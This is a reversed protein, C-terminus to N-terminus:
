KIHCNFIFLAICNLSSFFGQVIRLHKSGFLGPLKVSAPGPTSLEAAIPGRRKHPTIVHQQAKSRSVMVPGILSCSVSLQGIPSCSVHTWASQWPAVSLTFGLTVLDQWDGTSTSEMLAWGILPSYQTYAVLLLTPCCGDMKWRLDPGHFGSRGVCSWGLWLRRKHFNIMWKCLFQYCFMIEPQQLCFNVNQWIIEGWSLFHWCRCKLCKILTDSCLIFESCWYPVYFAIQLSTYIITVTSMKVPYSDCKIM